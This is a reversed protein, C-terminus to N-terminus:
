APPTPSPTVSYAHPTLRPTAYAVITDLHPVTLRGQAVLIYVAQETTQVGMVLRLRVLHGRVTNHSIGLHEAAARCSGTAVHAALVEVQRSTPHRIM